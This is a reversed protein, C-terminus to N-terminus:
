RDAVLILSCALGFTMYALDSSTARRLADDGLEPVALGISSESM